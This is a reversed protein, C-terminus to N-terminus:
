SDREIAVIRRAVMVTQYIFLLILLAGAAGIAVDFGSIPAFMGPQGGLMLMALTLAILALRLETPGAAMYSLKLEGLVRVALVAHIFLILYGTLAFLAADLRVYPSLGMGALILFTAFGDCSHDIFYGFAPREIRRFRALSGDMSDGFWHVFYGAIALWLWNSNISSSAYGIFVIGAGCVGTATLLDPTVWGPMKKCLWTLLRRESKALVNQQIRDIPKLTVKRRDIM